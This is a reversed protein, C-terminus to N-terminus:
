KKKGDTITDLRSKLQIQHLSQRASAPSERVQELLDYILVRDPHNDTIQKQNRYEIEIADLEKKIDAVRATQKDLESRKFAIEKHIREIEFSADDLTVHYKSNFSHQAVNIKAEVLELKRDIEKKRRWQWFYLNKREVLLNEAEDQLEKIKKLKQGMFDARAELEPIKEINQESKLNLLFLSRERIVYSNNLEYLYLAIERIKRFDAHLTGNKGITQATKKDIFPQLEIVRKASTLTTRMQNPIAENTTNANDATELHELAKEIQQQLDRMIQSMTEQKKGM